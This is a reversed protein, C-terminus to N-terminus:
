VFVGHGPEEEVRTVKITALGTPSMGNARFIAIISDRVQEEPCDPTVQMTLTVLYRDLKPNGHRDVVAIM